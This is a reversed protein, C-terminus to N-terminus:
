KLPLYRSPLTGQACVDVTTHQSLASSRRGCHRHGHRACVPCMRNFIFGLLQSSRPGAFSLLSFSFSAVSARGPFRLCPLRANPCRVRYHTVSHVYRHPCGGPVRSQVDVNEHAFETVGRQMVVGGPPVCKHPHMRNHEKMLFARPTHRANLHTKRMKTQQPQHALQMCAKRQARASGGSADCLLTAPGRACWAHMCHHMCACVCARPGLSKPAWVTVSGGM